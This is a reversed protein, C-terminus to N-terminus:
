DEYRQRARPREESALSLHHEGEAIVCTAGGSTSARAGATPKPAPPKVLLERLVYEVDDQMTTTVLCGFHGKNCVPDTCGALAAQRCQLPEKKDRYKFSAVDRVQCHPDGNMMHPCDGSRHCPASHDTSFAGCRDCHGHVRKLNLKIGSQKGHRKVADLIASRQKAITEGSQM